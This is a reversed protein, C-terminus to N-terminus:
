CKRGGNDDILTFLCVYAM